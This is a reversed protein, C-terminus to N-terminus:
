KLHRLRAGAGGQRHNGPRRAVVAAGRGRPAHSIPSRIARNLVEPTNTFNDTVTLDHIRDVWAHFWLKGDEAVNGSVTWGSSGDDPYLLRTHGRLYNEAIVGGPQEGLVYIAGGDDGLVEQTDVVRNARIVNDRPVTSAPMEANGWWWGLAIGGYPTGQVDNHSIELGRTFFGTIAEEQVFERCCRRVLNDRVTDDACVGALAAPFLPSGGAAYHQPHGVDTANGALDYFVNGRVVPAIADNTM